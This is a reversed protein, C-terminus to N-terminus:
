GAAVDSIALMFALGPRTIMLALLWEYAGVTPQVLAVVAATIVALDIVTAVVTNTASIRLKMSRARQTLLIAHTLTFLLGAGAAVQITLSARGTTDALAFTALALFGAALAMEPIQRLRYTDLAKLPVGRRFAAVLGSFGALSVGASVISFFFGAQPM